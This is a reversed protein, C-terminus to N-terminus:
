AANVRRADHFRTDTSDVPLDPLDESTSPLVGSPIYQVVAQGSVGDFTITLQEGRRWWRRRQRITVQVAPGLRVVHKSGDDHMVVVGATLVPGHQVDVPPTHRM